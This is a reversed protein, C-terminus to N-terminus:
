GARRFREVLELDLEEDCEEAHASGRRLFRHDEGEYADFATWTIFFGRAPELACRLTLLLNGVEFSVSFGIM